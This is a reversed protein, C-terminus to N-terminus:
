GALRGLLRRAPRPMSRAAIAAVISARGATTRALGITELGRDDTAFRDKYSEGGRLLRYERMGDQFAERVTHALLVFGVSYSDWAPDRGSQYYCEADGFRFGYWAAVPRENVEMMWLRLWGRELAIAAFERHFNRRRGAFADNRQLEHLKFLTELDRALRDPDTLRIRLDHERALKRERRRVQGRFNPTRSALFKEWSKGEIQLSPSADRRLTRGGVLTRWPRDGRLQDGIFIDWRPCRQELARKLLSSAEDLDQPDCVPGLQDGPGHGIFRVTRVPRGSSLYLPLIAFPDTGDRRCATLLLQRGDGFHRWWTAAWEWTSFLNGSREALVSWTASAEEFTGLPELSPPTMASGREETWVADQFTRNGADRRPGLM